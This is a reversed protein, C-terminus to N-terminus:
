GEGCGDMGWGILVYSSCSPRVLRKKALAVYALWCKGDETGSYNESIFNAEKELEEVLSEYNAPVSLSEM